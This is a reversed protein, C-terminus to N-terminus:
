YEEIMLDAIRNILAEIMRWSNEQVTLLREYHFETLGELFRNGMKEHNLDAVSHLQFYKLQGHPDIAPIAYEHFINAAAELCLNVLVIQEYPTSSPIKSIFWHGIADLIADTKINEIKREDFLIKDHNYEEDFHQKFFPMFTPDDCLATRLFIIKQFCVSWIHLYSWFTEKKEESSFFGANMLTFLNNNRFKNKFEENKHLLMDFGSINTDLQKKNHNKIMPM